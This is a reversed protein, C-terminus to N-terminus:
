CYKFDVKIQNNSTFISNVDIKYCLELNGGNKAPESRILEGWVGIQLNGYDTGHWCNTRRGEEIVLMTNLGGKKMITASKQGDSEVNFSLTTLYRFDEGIEEYTLSYGTKKKEFNGKTIIEIMEPDYATVENDDSVQRTSSKILILVNKM